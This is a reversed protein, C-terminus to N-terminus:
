FQLIIAIGLHQPTTCIDPWEDILCCLNVSDVQPMNLLCNRSTSTLHTHSYIYWTKYQKTIIQYKNCLRKWGLCPFSAVWLMLNSQGKRAFIVVRSFGQGNSTPAQTSFQVPKPRPIGLVDLIWLSHCFNRDVVLNQRLGNIFGTPKKLMLFVFGAICGSHANNCNDIRSFILYLNFWVVLIPSTVPIPKKVHLPRWLTWPLYWMHTSEQVMWSWVHFASVLEPRVLLVWLGRSPPAPFCMGLWVSWTKWWSLDVHM